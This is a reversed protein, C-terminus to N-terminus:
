GPTLRLANLIQFIRESSNEFLFFACAIFVFTLGWSCISWPRSKPNIFAARRWGEHFALGLAHMWAFWIYNWQLGHWLGMFTFVFLTIVPAVWPYLGAFRSQIVLKSLPTFLMINLYETLSIHWRQWFQRINKALLPENFNEKVELGLSASLGIIVDCFGSFNIYIYLTYSFIGVILQSLPLVEQGTFTKTLTFEYFFSSVVFFKFAGLLIREAAAWFLILDRHTEGNLFELYRQFSNIPGVLLTKPDFLYCLSDLYSRAGQPINRFEILMLSLRFSTYSLGIWLIPARQLGSQAVLPVIWSGFILSFDALSFLHICNLGILGLVPFFAALYFVKLKLLLNALFLIILSYCLYAAFVAIGLGKENHFFLFYAAFINLLLFAYRTFRFKRFCSLTFALVLYPVLYQPQSFFSDM